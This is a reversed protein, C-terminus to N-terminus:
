WKFEDKPDLKNDNESFSSPPIMNPLSLNDERILWEYMPDFTDMLKTLTDLRHKIPLDIFYQIRSGLITDLHKYTSSGIHWVRHILEQSQNPIAERLASEIIHELEFMISQDLKDISMFAMAHRLVSTQVLVTPWLLPVGYTMCSDPDDPDGADTQRCGEFAKRVQYALDLVFGEKDSIYPSEDVVRHIFDHLRDLSRLDGWLEFGAHYRTLSYQLM